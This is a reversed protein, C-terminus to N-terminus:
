ENETGETTLLEEKTLQSEVWAQASDPSEKELARIIRAAQEENLTELSEAKSWEKIKEKREDSIEMHSFLFSLHDPLKLEFDDIKQANESDDCETVEEDKDVLKGFRQKISDAATLPKLPVIESQNVDKIDRAEEVTLLGKLVDPFMDRLAFGRARFKLMRKPYLRWTGQKDWLSAKTADVESFRSVITERGKRSITCTATNTEEDFTEICDEFDPSQMCVALMGDGWICPRGNVVMINQIAQMPKLGLEIGLQVAILLNSPSSQFEKPVCNSKCIVEAAKLANDLNSFDFFGIQQQAQLTIPQVSM